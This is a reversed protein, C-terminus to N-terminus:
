RANELEANDIIEQCFSTIADGFPIGAQIKEVITSFAMQSESAAPFLIQWAQTVSDPWILHIALALILVVIAIIRFLHKKEKSKYVRDSGYSIKYGM